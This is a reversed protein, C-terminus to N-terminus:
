HTYGTGRVLLPLLDDVGGWPPLPEMAAPQRAWPDKHGAPIDALTQLYPLLYLGAPSLSVRHSSQLMDLGPEGEGVVTPSVQSNVQDAWHAGARSEQSGPLSVGAVEPGFSWQAEARGEGDDREAQGPRPVIRGISKIVPGEHRRM